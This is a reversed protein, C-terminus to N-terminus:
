GGLGPRPESRPRESSPVHRSIGRLAALESRELVYSVIVGIVLGWFFPGLGLLSLGSQVTAFAFVPGLVLPGGVVQKLSTTLVGILALGALAQILVIPLFRLLGVAVGAFLGIVVLGVGAALAARQRREHAGCDPGAVLPMIPLPVSVANPGLISLGVTGIGSVVDIEREPPDYGQSRLFVISPVNAQLLMIVVLVPTVTAVAQLTLQPSTVAISPPVFAPPPGLQGSIAAAGVGVLLAPLLPTVSRIFRRGVVYGVISGGVVIPDQEVNTFTRVVFPLVAGAVLGLVIPAPIVRALRGSLGVLGLIAVAAGAIVAAGALEPFALRSGESAFLIIAFVNGTLVLPQHYRLALVLGLLGPGAYLAFIWSALQGDTLSFAHASSLPIALVALFVMIAPLAAAISDLYGRRWRPAAAEARSDGGM